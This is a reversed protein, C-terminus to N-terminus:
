LWSWGVKTKLVVNFDVPYESRFTSVKSYTPHDERWWGKVDEVKHPVSDLFKRVSPLDPSDGLSSRAQELSCGAVWFDPLYTRGDSLDFRKVEYFWPVGEETLSAARDSELRSRMWVEGQFPTSVLVKTGYGISLPVQRGNRYGKLISRRIRDGRCGNTDVGLSRLLRTAVGGSCGLALGVNVVSLKDETFLRVALDKDEQSFSRGRPLYIGKSRLEANRDLHFSRLAKAANLYRHSKIDFGRGTLFKYMLPADCRVMKAIKSAATGSLYEGLILDQEASTFVRKRAM